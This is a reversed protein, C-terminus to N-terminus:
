ETRLAEIPSVATARRAPIWCAIAAAAAIVAAGATFTVPDRPGIGYLQARLLQSSAVAIALGAACGAVALGLGERMVHQVVMGPAAGLALRVGFEHRRRAVAYSLVGYVGVCALLLAVIAFAAALQMTFRRTARASEIYNGMPRVDYIPLRPDLRAIAARIDPALSAADRNSRVAYAMPNRLVLRQPFFVQETLDAVLSRLRL